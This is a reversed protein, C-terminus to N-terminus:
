SLWKASRPDRALLDPQTNRMLPEKGSHPLARSVASFRDLSLGLWDNRVLLESGSNHRVSVVVCARLWTKLNPPACYM